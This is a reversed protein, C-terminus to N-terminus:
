HSGGIREETIIDFTLVQCGLGKITMQDKLGYDRCEKLVEYIRVALRCGLKWVELEEFSKYAM